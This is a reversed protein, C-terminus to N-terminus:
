DPPQAALPGIHGKHQDHLGLPADARSARIYAAVGAQPGVRGGDLDPLAPALVALLDIQGVIPSAAHRQGVRAVQKLAQVPRNLLDRVAHPQEQAAREIRHELVM